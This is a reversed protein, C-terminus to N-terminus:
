KETKEGCDSVLAHEGIVILYFSPSADIITPVAPRDLRPRCIIM